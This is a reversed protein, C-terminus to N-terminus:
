SSSTSGRYFGNLDIIVDTSGAGGVVIEVDLSSGLLFTGANAITSGSSSWNITSGAAVTDGGPNITVFGAGSTRTITINAAIVETGDPLTGEVVSGDSVDIKDRVSVTRTTGSALNTSFRSDYVRTPPLPQYSSVTRDSALMTWTGPTGGDVCYWLSGAASCVIEGRQHTDSRDAPTPGANEFELNARTGRALLGAAAAGAGSAVVGFGGNASLGYVGNTVTSNAYGGLAAPYSSSDQSGVAVFGSPEDRVLLINADYSSLGAAYRPPAANVYRLTTKTRGTDGQTTVEGATIADTDAAAVPRAGGAVALAGGAAAAGAALRFLNRRSPEISTSPDDQERHREPVDTTPPVPAEATALRAELAAVTAELRAIRDPHAAPIEAAGDNLDTTTTSSM